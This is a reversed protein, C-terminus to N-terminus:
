AAAFPPRTESVFAIAFSSAGLPTRTFQTAGPRMPWVLKWPRKVGRSAKSAASFVIGIPRAPVGSSTARTIAKRHPGSEAYRAPSVISIL